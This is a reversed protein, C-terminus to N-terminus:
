QASQLSDELGGQHIWKVADEIIAQQPHHGRGGLPIGYLTHYIGDQEFRHRVGQKGEATMSEVALTFRGYEFTDPVVASSETTGQYTASEGDNGTINGRTNSSTTVTRTGHYTAPEVTIYLLATAMQDPTVYCVDPYKKQLDTELWKLSKAKEVGQQVNGLKDKEVVSFKVACPSSQIKDKAWAASSLFFAILAM